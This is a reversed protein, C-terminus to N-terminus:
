RFFKLELRGAEIAMEKNLHKGHVDDYFEKGSYLNEMSAREADADDAHPHPELIEFLEGIVDVTELSVSDVRKAALEQKLGLCIQACFARPYVQCASARGNM